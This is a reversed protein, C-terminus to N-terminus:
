FFFPSILVFCYHTKKMLILKKLTLFIKKENSDGWDSNGFHGKVNYYIFFVCLKYIVIILTKM